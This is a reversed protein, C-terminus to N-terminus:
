KLEKIYINKFWPPTGHHQFVIPGAAKNFRCKFNDLVLEGNLHVTVLGKELKIEFHNWEGFPKDAAKM